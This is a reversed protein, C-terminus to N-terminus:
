RRRVLACALGPLDQGGHLGTSALLLEGPLMRRPEKTVNCILALDDRHVTLLGGREDVRTAEPAPDRLAPYARRAAILARYWALMQAHEGDGRERWRLVSADRTAPAEPDPLPPAPRGAANTAM